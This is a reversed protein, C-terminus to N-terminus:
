RPPASSASSGLEEADTGELIEATNDGPQATDGAEGAPDEDDDSGPLRGTRAREQAAALGEPGDPQELLRARARELEARIRETWESEVGTRETMLLTLEWYRISHRILPKVLRALYTRYEEHYTELLEDELPNQPPPVPASTIAEWFDDYMEGIRYGAAAAWGAHTKRITDFYARQADLIHQARRELAPRQVAVGGEPIEVAAAQLRHTEALVYNAASTFYIGVGEEDGRRTRAYSLTSRALAAADERRGAGLLHQAKRAMAEVREESSLGDLALLADTIEIGDEHRELSLYIQALQFRAHAADESDPVERLLREFRSAAQALAETDRPASMPGVGVGTEKLCLGANYLSPSVFRSSPFEDAVRDYRQVAPECRGARMETLGSQFLTEADYADFAYGGDDTPRATIRLEELHRVEESDPTTPTSQRGACALGLSCLLALATPRRM